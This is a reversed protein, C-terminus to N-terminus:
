IGTTLRCSIQIEPQHLGIKENQNKSEIFLKGNTDLDSDKKM